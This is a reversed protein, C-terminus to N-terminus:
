RVQNVLLDKQSLPRNGRFCCNFILLVRRGLLLAREWQSIAHWCETRVIFTMAQAYVPFIWLTGKVRWGVPFSLGSFFLWSPLVWTFCSLGSLHFLLPVGSYGSLSILSVVSDWLVGVMSTRGIFVALLAFCLMLFLLFLCFSDGLIPFCLFFMCDFLLSSEGSFSSFLISTLLSHFIFNLLITM